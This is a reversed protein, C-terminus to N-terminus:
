SRTCLSLLWQFHVICGSASTKNEVVSSNLHHVAANFRFGKVPNEQEGLGAGFNLSIVFDSAPTDVEFKLWVVLEFAARLSYTQRLVLEQSTPPTELPLCRSRVSNALSVCKWINLRIKNVSLYIDFLLLWLQVGRRTFTGKCKNWSMFRRESLRTMWAYISWTRYPCATSAWLTWSGPLFFVYVSAHM